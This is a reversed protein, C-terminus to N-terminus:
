DVYFKFNSYPKRNNMINNFEFLEVQHRFDLVSKNKSITDFNIKRANKRPSAIYVTQGLNFLFSAMTKTIEKKM